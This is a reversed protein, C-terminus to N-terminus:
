MRWSSAREDTAREGLLAVCGDPTILADLERLTADRHMWHFSRGMAVMAFSGLARDLDESGGQILRLPVGASAAEQRAIELMESDPDMGVLERFYRAMGIAIFAPGCGLDLLRGGGDLGRREAIRAFLAAPYRPRFRAYFPATSRFRSASAM